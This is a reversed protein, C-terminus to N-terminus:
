RFRHLDIDDAPTKKLRSNPWNERIFKRDLQLKNTNMQPNIKKQGSGFDIPILTILNQRGNILELPKNKLRQWDPCPHSM